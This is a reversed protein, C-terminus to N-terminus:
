WGRMYEILMNLDAESIAREGFGPMRNKGRRISQTLDEDSREPIVPRLAPGAGIYGGPHCVQCYTTYVQAGREM